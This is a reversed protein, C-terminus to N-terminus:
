MRVSEPPLLLRPLEALSEVIHHHPRSQLQERTGAGGTVGIVLGCGASTGEDLDVVTDGVKAVRRADAVGLQKMLALIMDPHPRGRPVEDSAVSADIVPGTAWGLRDLIVRVIERSFGTNLAVKVGARRLLAFTAGAGPVERVAPDNAYYGKM